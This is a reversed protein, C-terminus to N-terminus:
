EGSAALEDLYDTVLHEHRPYVHFSGANWVIEGEEVCIRAALCGLIYQHWALDGKYGFVADSSRMQVLCYLRKNGNRDPRILFQVANTCIFDRRERVFADRHMSPRNYIMIAQRTYPDNKLAKACNDFQYGNQESWVCWGYNSNITGDWAAVDKWIKPVEGPIDHVRLSMSKYWALERAHWDENPTGFVADEDAIFQCAVIERMGRSDPPTMALQHRVDTVRDKVGFIRCADAVATDTM